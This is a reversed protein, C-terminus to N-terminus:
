EGILGRRRLSARSAVVGALVRRVGTKGFRNRTKGGGDIMKWNVFM